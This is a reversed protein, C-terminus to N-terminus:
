RLQEFSQLAGVITHMCPVNGRVGIILCQLLNGWNLKAQAIIVEAVVIVGM